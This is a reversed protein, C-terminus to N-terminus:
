FELKTDVLPHLVKKFFLVREQASCFTNCLFIKKSNECVKAGKIWDAFDLM